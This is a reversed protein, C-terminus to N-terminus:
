TPGRPPPTFAGGRHGGATQLPLYGGTMSLNGNNWIGGGNQTATNSRIDPVAGTLNDVRITLSGTISTNAIGGGFQASNLYISGGTITLSGGANQIGGGYDTPNTNEYVNCLYLSLTGTANLIGMGM